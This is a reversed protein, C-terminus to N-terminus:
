KVFHLLNYLIRLIIIIIIIAFALSNTINIIKTMM